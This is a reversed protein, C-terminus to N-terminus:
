GGGFGYIRDKHARWGTARGCLGGRGAIAGRVAAYGIEDAQVDTWADWGSQGEQYNGYVQTGYEIAAGITAGAAIAICFPCHGSPDTFRAPNNEAYAYRNLSQPRAAFGGFTDRQLFRGLAPSYHRARLYITGDAVGMPEGTFGMRSQGAGSSHRIAGFVDYGQSLTLAGSADTLHRLSGLADLLPYEVGQPAGGAITQQAALGDAGYAYLTESGDSRVEGLIHPLPGREDLVFDTTVGGVSERVLNGNGDYGYTTTVGGKITQM